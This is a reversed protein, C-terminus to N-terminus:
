KNIGMEDKSSSMRHLASFFDRSEWGEEEIIRHTNRDAHLREEENILKIIRESIIDITVSDKRWSLKFQPHFASAMINDLDNLQPHFRKKVDDIFVTVICIFSQFRVLLIISFNSKM